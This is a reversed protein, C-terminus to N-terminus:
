WAIREPPVPHPNAIIELIKGSGMRIINHAMTSIASNHTVIIITTGLEENIKKLLSLIKQGTALDLAGTPEDCLLLRPNKVLARAIAVRQQEGGSLQSPFHNKRAALGVKELVKRSSLPNKVLNAALEVNELATLDAILNYFQFVFGIERRRYLTLEQDDLRTLDRDYFFISGASPRDMGGIMNLLTSKGSGSPGLIVTIEHENIELSIDKLAEVTVEGMHYFKNVGILKLLIKSM